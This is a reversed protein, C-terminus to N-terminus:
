KQILGCVSVIVGRTVTCSAMAIDSTKVRTIAMNKLKGNKM